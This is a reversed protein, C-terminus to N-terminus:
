LAIYKMTVRESGSVVTIFYLGRTLIDLQSLSDQGGEMLIFEEYLVKGDLNQVLVKVENQSLGTVSLNINSGNGPNPYVKADLNRRCEKSNLTNLAIMDFVERQGDFDTQSLRFYMVQASTEVKYTHEYKKESQSNGAGLINDLFIFNFGDMSYEITFYDNNIESLTVWTLDFENCVKQEVSFDLLEIPLGAGGGYSCPGSNCPTTSGFITSSNRIDVEGSTQINGTGLIGSNNRATLDGGVVVNGNINTTNNNRIELNGNIFLVACSEITITSNNDFSVNGRVTMTDCGRLIFNGSNRVELDGGIVVNGSVDFNGSGRVDIDYEAGGNPDIITGANSVTYNGNNINLNTNLTMNRTINAIGGDAPVGNSWNSATNWAGNSISTTTQASLFCVSFISYLLFIYIRM